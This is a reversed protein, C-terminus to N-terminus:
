LLCDKAFKLLLYVAYGIAFYYGLNALAENFGTSPLYVHFYVYSFVVIAAFSVALILTMKVGQRINNRM